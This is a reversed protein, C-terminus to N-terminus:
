HIEIQEFTSDCLNQAITAIENYSEASEILHPYDLISEELYQTCQPM